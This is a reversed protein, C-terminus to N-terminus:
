QEQEKRSASVLLSTAALLMLGDVALPGASALFKTEGWSILLGRMHWYSEMGAVAAVLVTGLWRAIMPWARGPWSTRSLVEISILLFVPWVAAAAIEAVSAKGATDPKAAHLMNAVVSVALGLWFGMRAWGVAGGASRASRNNDAGTTAHAENRLARQAVEDMRSTTADPVFGGAAHAAGNSVLLENGTPIGVEIEPLTQVQAARAAREEEERQARQADASRRQADADAQERALDTEAERIRDQAWRTSRGLAAGLESAPVPSGAELSERFRRRAEAQLSEARDTTTSVQSWEEVNAEADEAQVGM